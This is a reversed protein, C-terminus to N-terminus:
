ASPENTLRRTLAVWMMGLPVTVGLSVVVAISTPVLLVLANGLASPWSWSSPDLRGRVLDVAIMMVLMGLWICVATSTSATVAAMTHPALRGRWPEVVRPACLWGTFAAPLLLIAGLGVAMWPGREGDLHGLLVAGVAVAIALVSGLIEAAVIGAARVKM